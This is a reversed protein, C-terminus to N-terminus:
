TSILEWWVSVWLHCGVVVVMVESYMCSPTQVRLGLACDVPTHIHYRFCLIRWAHCHMHTCKGSSLASSGQESEALQQQVHVIEAEMAKMEEDSVAPLLDKWFVCLVASLFLCHSSLVM